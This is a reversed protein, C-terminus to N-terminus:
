SSDIFGLKIFNIEFWERSCSHIVRDKMSKGSISSCNEIVHESFFGYNIGILGGTGFAGTVSLSTMTLNLIRGGEQVGILGVYDTGPRNITLDHINYGRGDLTGKFTTSLTGIPEFGAGANWTSTGTADIDGTLYYYANM